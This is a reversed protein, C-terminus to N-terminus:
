NSVFSGSVSIPCPHFHKHRKSPKSKSLNGETLSQNLILRLITALLFSQSISKKGPELLILIQYVFKDQQKFKIALQKRVWIGCDAFRLDRGSRPLAIFFFIGQYLLAFEYLEILSSSHISRM